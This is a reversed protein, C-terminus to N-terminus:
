KSIQERRAVQRRKTQKIAQVVDNIEGLGITQTDHKITSPTILHESTPKKNEENGQLTNKVQEIGLLERSM